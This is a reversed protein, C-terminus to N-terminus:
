KKDEAVSLPAMEEKVEASAEKTEHYSKETNVSWVASKDTVGALIADVAEFSTAM